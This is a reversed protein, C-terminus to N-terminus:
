EAPPRNILFPVYNIPEILTYPQYDSKRRQNEQDVLTSYAKPNSDYWYTIPYTLADEGSSGDALYAWKAKDPKWVRLSKYAKSRRHPVFRIIPEKFKRRYEIIREQEIEGFENLKPTRVSLKIFLVVEPHIETIWSNFAEFLNGAGACMLKAQKTM